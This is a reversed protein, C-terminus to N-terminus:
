SYWAKWSLIKLCAKNQLDNLFFILICDCITYILHANLYLEFDQFFLLLNLWMLFMVCSPFTCNHTCCAFSSVSADITKMEVTMLLRARPWSFLGNDIVVSLFISFFHYYEAHIHWFSSKIHILLASSFYLAAQKSSLTQLTM